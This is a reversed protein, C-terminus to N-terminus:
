GSYHASNCSPECLTFLTLDLFEGMVQYKTELAYGQKGHTFPRFTDFLKGLTFLTLSRFENVFQYDTELLYGQKGQTFEKIFALVHIGSVVKVKM